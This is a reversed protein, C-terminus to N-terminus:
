STSRDSSRAPVKASIRGLGVAGDRMTLVTDTGTRIKGAKVQRFLAIFGADYRKLVSTLVHPGLFSQDSDVGVGWVGADATAALTGLGCAGAVNFITGAGRAIQRRALAGCRSRDIFDNSYDVLVEVGPAAHRAGAAFGVVFDEVPPVKVGGVVGVVDRGPRRRELKGALWGALYAGESTRFVVGQANPPRGPLVTRSADMLAFPVDPHRRVVSQFAPEFYQGFTVVLEYRQRAILGLFDALSEQFTPAM